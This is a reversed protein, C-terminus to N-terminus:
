RMSPLSAVLAAFQPNTLSNQRSRQIHKLIAKGSKGTLEYITLASLLGSRNRGAACTILVKRGSRVTRAAEDAAALSLDWHAQPLPMDLDYLPVRLVRVGPYAWDPLQLEAAALVLLDFGCEQVAAGCMPWSGQYLLASLQTVDLRCKGRVVDQSSM